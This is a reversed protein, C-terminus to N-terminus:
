PPPTATQRRQQTEARCGSRPRPHRHRLIREHRASVAKTIKNRYDGLQPLLQAAAFALDPVQPPLVLNEPLRRLRKDVVRRGPLPEREDM